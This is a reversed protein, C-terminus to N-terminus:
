AGSYLRRHKVKRRPPAVYFRPTPGRKATEGATDILRDCGDGGGSAGVKGTMGAFAPIKRKASAVSVGM